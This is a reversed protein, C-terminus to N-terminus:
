GDGLVEAEAEERLGIKPTLTGLGDISVSMGRAMSDAMEEVLTLVIGKVEGEAFTTGRACERALEELEVTGNSKLKYCVQKVGMQRMDAMEKKIYQAM